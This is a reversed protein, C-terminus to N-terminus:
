YNQRDKNEIGPIFHRWFKLFHQAKVMKDGLNKLFLQLQYLIDLQKPFGPNETKFPAATEQPKGLSCLTEHM